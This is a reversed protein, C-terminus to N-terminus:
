ARAVKLGAQERDWSNGIGRQKLAEYQIRQTGTKPLDDVMEIFRPVAYYAM